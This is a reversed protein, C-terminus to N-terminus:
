VDMHTQTNLDLGIFIPLVRLPPPFGEVAPSLRAAAAQSAEKTPRITAFALNGCGDFAAYAAIERPHTKRKAV